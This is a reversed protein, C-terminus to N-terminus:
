SCWRSLLFSCANFRGCRSGGGGRRRPRPVGRPSRPAVRVGRGHAKLGRAGTPGAPTALVILVASSGRGVLIEDLALCVLLDRWLGKSQVLRSVHTFVYPRFGLLREAFEALAARASNRDGPSIEEAGVGNYVLVPPESRFESGLFALEQMVLDGVALVKDWHWARRM